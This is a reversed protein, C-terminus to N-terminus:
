DSFEISKFTVKVVTGQPVVEKYAIDQSISYVYDGSYLGDLSINIGYYEAREKAESVSLGVLDPVTVTNVKIDKETYLVVTGGNPISSGAEPIQSVVTDGEGKITVSLGDNYAKQEADSISLGVYNSTKTDINALEEATYQQEVELYPLVEKMVNAFVPAAVKSGYHENGLPTDFFVLMLVQANNAPAFGCFSSIYDDIGDGNSDNKKESTGTKGAVRYGSIYANVAGGDIANQELIECMRNSVEESIVQRKINTDITQTVNGESDVMEKVFHPQVIYGGNAVACCAVAMQMPTISFNQGFSAVALDVPGMSGDESFFIDESEGPLDVNTYDSFGFAQYYKWFNEEGILQGIQILAPNCSNCIARAFTQTGHGVNSHCHINIGYVNYSTNCTFMSNESILGEQLAMSATVMKFVSGPYYTDSVTKNRWMEYMLENEKADRDADPHKAMYEELRKKYTDNLEFPNNLDFGGVTANALIEGTNPDIVICGGRNYVKNEEIAIEMYKEVISQITEDITLVLGTGDQADINQKYEFPLSDGNANQATILRGSQGQLISNYEYELGSLGQGDSGTVGIVGSALSGYPYYRKYDDYFNIGNSPVLSKGEANDPANDMFELIKERIDSEVKTKLLVYQSETQNIKDLVKSQEMGLIEALGKSTYERQEVTEFAGPDLAVKWVSASQALVKGNRDYITGRKASITVSSFQQSVARKKLVEDIGFQLYGIRFISFGFGCILLFSLIMNIRVKLSIRKKHTKINKNALNNM